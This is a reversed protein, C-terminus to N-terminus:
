SDVEKLRLVNGEFAVHFLHGLSLKLVWLRLLTHVVIRLSLVTM